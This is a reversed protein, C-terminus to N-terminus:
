RPGGTPQVEKMDRVIIQLSVAAAVDGNNGTPQLRLDTLEVPIAGGRLTRLTGYIARVTGSIQVEAPVMFWESGTVKSNYRSTYPAM